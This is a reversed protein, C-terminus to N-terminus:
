NLLAPRFLCPEDAFEPPNTCLLRAIKWAAIVKPVYARTEEFPPVSQREKVANEGANYGALALIPDGQFERLLWSLYTAGGKINQEPDKADTVKFREATAPILQMLGAANASSVADARGASEVAIVAAILAPSVQAEISSRLIFKGYNQIIRTLLQTDPIKFDEPANDVQVLAARLRDRNAQSVEPSVGAWFWDSMNGADTQPQGILEDLREEVVTTPRPNEPPALLLAQEDPDIQINIKSGAPRNEVKM